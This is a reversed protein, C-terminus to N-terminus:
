LVGLESLNSAALLLGTVSAALLIGPPGAYGGAALGLGFQVVEVFVQEGTSLDSVDDVGRAQALTSGFIDEQVRASTPPFLLTPIDAKELQGSVLNSGTETTTNVADPYQEALREDWALVMSREFLEKAIATVALTVLLSTPAFITVFIVVEGAPSVAMMGFKTGKWGLKAIFKAGPKFKTVVRFVFISGKIFVM